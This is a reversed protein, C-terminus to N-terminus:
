KGDFRFVTCLKADCLRLATAAIAEFVPQADTPSSSIMRLIEATAAQQDSADGLSRRLRENDAQLEVHFGVTAAAADLPAGCKLCFKAASPNDHQCRPCKM